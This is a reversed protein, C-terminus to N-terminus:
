DSKSFMKGKSECKQKESLLCGNNDKPPEPHVCHCEHDVRDAAAAALYPLSTLSVSSNAKSRASISRGGRVVM